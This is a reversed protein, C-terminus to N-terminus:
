IVSCTQPRKERDPLAEREFQAQELALPDGGTKDKSTENSNNCIDCQM